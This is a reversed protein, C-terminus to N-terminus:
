LGEKLIYKKYSRELYYFCNSEYLRLTVDKLQLGSSYLNYIHEVDETYGNSMNGYNSSSTSEKYAERLDAYMAMYQLLKPDEFNLTTQITM